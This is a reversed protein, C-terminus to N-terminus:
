RLVERASLSRAQRAAHRGAGISVAIIAVLMLTVVALALAPEVVAGVVLAPPVDVILARALDGVLLLAAGIGVLLGGATAATLVAAIEGARARAQVGVGVGIARLVVVDVERVGGIARSVIASAVVALVLAGLAAAWLAIRAGEALAGTPADAVVDVSTAGPILGRVDDVVERLTAADLRSGDVPALWVGSVPLPREAVALQSQAVAALDVAVAVVSVAGPVAPVIDTVVGVIERGSGAIAVTMSDGVQAGVREAAAPTVALRLAAPDPMFRVAERASPRADWQEDVTIVSEAGEADTAIIAPPVADLDRESTTPEVDIALVRWPGGVEPLAVVGGDDPGVQTVGGRADALWFAARADDGELRITTATAVIEIVPLPSARIAAALRELDVAGSATAGVETLATPDVAVLTGPEDDGSLEAISVPAGSWATGALTVPTGTAGIAARADADLAGGTVVLEAGFTLERAARESSRTTSDVTAAIVLGGVTLAILLVPATVIATSRALPRAVLVPTLRDGIAVARALIRALPEVLIVILLAGAVLVLVPTLAAIPDVATGGDATPVVPGGYLLFQSVAVGAALLSLVLAAASVGRSQRGSDLLTDRRLASRASRATIVVALLLVVLTVALAWGSTSLVLPVPDAVVRELSGPRASLAIATGAVSGVVASPLAVLLAEVASNSALRRPSAGRSRLLTTEERRVATLLRQLEFLTTLAAVGVLALAVPLVAEVGAAARRVEAVTSALGGDVVIGTGQSRPDDDIVRALVPLGAEIEDLAAPSARRPDLASVWQAIPRTSLERWIAENIVLPGAASAVAGTEVLPDGAWAPDGSDLPLWLATITVVIPEDGAGPLTVPDGIGLELADAAARHLASEQRTAPWTGEVIEVRDVLREDSVLVVDEAVEAVDLPESRISSQPALAASPMLSELAERVAADQDAAARAAESESAGGQGAWRIAVRAVSGEGPAASIISGAGDIVTGQTLGGLGSGLGASLAVVGAVGILLRGRSRMRHVLMM